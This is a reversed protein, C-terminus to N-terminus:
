GYNLANKLLYFLTGITVSGNNAKLCKNFQNDTKRHDYESYPACLLHFLERGTEGYENALAFGCKVYTDYDPAIDIGMLNVQKIM